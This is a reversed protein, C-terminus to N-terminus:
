AAARDEDSNWTVLRSDRWTYTREFRPYPVFVVGSTIRFADNPNVAYVKEKVVTTLTTGELVNEDFRKSLGSLLSECSFGCVPPPPPM